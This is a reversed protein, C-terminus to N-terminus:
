SIARVSLPSSGLRVQSSKRIYREDGPRTTAASWRDLCILWISRFTLRVGRSVPHREDEYNEIRQGIKGATLFLGSVTPPRCEWPPESFEGPFFTWM